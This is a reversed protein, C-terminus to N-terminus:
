KPSRGPNFPGMRYGELDITVFKFGAKKVLRVIENRMRPNGIRDLEEAGLEIRAISGHHRVRLQRFGLMELAEEAMEIQRLKEATIEEGYPIRSSLCAKSPKNWTSLGLERSLLRIEEKTLGAERLPAIAGFELAARSGPRFDGEDDANAGYAIFKFGKERAISRLREFLDSKCFYCRTYSNKLFESNGMEGSEIFLHPIGIELAITKAQIKESKPLSESVATVALTRGKLADCAVRALFSSDVGGSFAVLLSECEKVISKLKEYKDFAKM